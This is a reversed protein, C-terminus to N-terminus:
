YTMSFKFKNQPKYPVYDPEEDRKHKLMIKRTAVHSEIQLLPENRLNIETMMKGQLIFFLYFVHVVSKYFYIIMILDKAFHCIEDKM